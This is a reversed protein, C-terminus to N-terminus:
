GVSITSIIMSYTSLCLSIVTSFCRQSFKFYQYGTLSIIRFFNSRQFLGARFHRGKPIKPHYAFAGYAGQMMVWSAKAFRANGPAANIGINGHNQHCVIQSESVM